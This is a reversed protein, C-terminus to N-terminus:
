RSTHKAHTETEALAVKRALASRQNQGGVLAQTGAATAHTADARPAAAGVDLLVQLGHEVQQSGLLRELHYSSLVSDHYVRCM